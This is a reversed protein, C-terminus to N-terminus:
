GMSKLDPDERLKTKSFLGLIPKPSFTSRTFRRSEFKMVAVELAPRRDVVDGIRVRAEKTPHYVEDSFLFGLNAVTM